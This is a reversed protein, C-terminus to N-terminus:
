NKKRRPMRLNKKFTWLCLGLIIKKPPFSLFIPPTPLKIKKPPPCCKKIAKGKVHDSVGWHIFLPLDSPNDPFIQGLSTRQTILSEQPTCGRIFTQNSLPLNELCPRFVKWQKESKQIIVPIIISGLTVKPHVSFM